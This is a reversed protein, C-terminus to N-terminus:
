CKKSPISVLSLFLTYRFLETIVVGMELSSKSNIIIYNLREDVMSCSSLQWFCKFQKNAYYMHQIQKQLVTNM